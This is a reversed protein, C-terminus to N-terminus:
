SIKPLECNLHYMTTNSSLICPSKWVMNSNMADELARKVSIVSIDCEGPQKWTNCLMQIINAVTSSQYVLSFGIYVTQLQVEMYRRELPTWYNIQVLMTTLSLILIRKSSREKATVSNGKFLSPSRNFCWISRTPAKRVWVLLLQILWTEIYTCTLWVIRKMLLWVYKIVRTSIQSLLFRFLSDAALGGWLEQTRM